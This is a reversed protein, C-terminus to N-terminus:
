AAQQRAREMKNMLRQYRGQLLLVRDRLQDLRQRIAKAHLDIDSQSMSASRLKLQNNLRKHEHVRYRETNEIQDLVEALASQLFEINPTHTTYDPSTTKM